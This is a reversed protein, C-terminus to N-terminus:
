CANYFRDLWYRPARNLILEELDDIRNIMDDTDSFTEVLKFNETVNDFVAHRLIRGDAVASNGYTGGGKFATSRGGWGDQLLKFGDSAMFSVSLTGDTITYTTM